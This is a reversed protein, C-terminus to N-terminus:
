NVRLIIKSDGILGSGDVGVLKCQFFTRKDGNFFSIKQEGSNDLILNPNWYLTSRSDFTKKQNDKNSSYDPSYFTKNIKFGKIISINKDATINVTNNRHENGQYLTIEILGNYSSGYMLAAGPNTSIKIEKIDNINLWGLEDLNRTNIIIAKASKKKVEDMDHLANGGSVGNVIIAAGMEPGTISSPGRFIIRGGITKFSPGAMKILAILAEPGSSMGYARALELENENLGYEAFNRNRSDNYESKYRRKTISVEKIFLTSKEYDTYENITNQKIPIRKEPLNYSLVVNESLKLKSLINKNTHQDLVITLIKKQDPFAASISLYQSSAVSIFEDIPIYFRGSEDTETTIIQWTKTDIIQVQANIAPNNKRIYVTGRIGPSKESDIIIKSYEEIMEIKRWGHTLLLMNLASDAKESQKLYFSLDGSVDKLKSGLLLYSAIDQTNNNIENNDTVALSLNAPTPNGKFDLAKIKMEVKERPAYIEKETEISLKMEKYKNLFILRESVPLNESFLTLTALGVPLSSTSLTFHKENEIYGEFIDRYELGNSLSLKIKKDILNPSANVSFSIISSDTKEVSLLYGDEFSVPLPYLSEGLNPKKLKVYYLENAKPIFSFIGLGDHFTEIEKILKGNQDLLTGKINLPIGNKDNAKFAINNLLNQVLSGGEPFFNMSIGETGLPININLTEIKNLYDAELLLVIESNSYQTPINWNIDVKGHSDTKQTKSHLKKGESEITYTIKAETIPIELSTFCNIKGALVSESLKDLDPNYSIEWLESPSSDITIESNFWCSPSLHKMNETYAIIQYSGKKISDSLRFDGNSFGNQIPFNESFVNNGNNDVINVNLLKSKNSPLHYEDDLIYAKFWIDEDSTYISKDTHVYIEELYPISVQNQSFSKFTFTNLILFFSLLFSLRYKIFYFQIKRM